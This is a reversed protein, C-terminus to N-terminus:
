AGGKSARVINSQIAQRIASWHVGRLQKPDHFINLEYSRLGARHLITLTNAICFLFCHSWVNDTRSMQPIDDTSDLEGAPLLLTDINAYALVAIGNSIELLRIIRQLRSSKGSQRFNREQATILAWRESVVAVACTIFKVCRPSEVRSEDLFLNIVEPIV